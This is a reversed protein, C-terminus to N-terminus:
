LGAAVKTACAIFSWQNEPRTNPTLFRCGHSWRIVGPLHARWRPATYQRAKKADRWCGRRAKFPTQSRGICGLRLCRISHERRKSSRSEHGHDLM